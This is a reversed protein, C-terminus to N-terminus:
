LDRDFADGSLIRIRARNTHFYLFGNTNSAYSWEAHIDGARVTTDHVATPTLQYRGNAGLKRDYSELVRGSGSQVPLSASARYRWRYSAENPGFSKFQVVASAGSPTQIFLVDNTTASVSKRKTSDSSIDETAAQLLSAIGCLALFTIITHSNKMAHSDGPM